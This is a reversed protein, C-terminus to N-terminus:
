RSTRVTLTNHRRGDAPLAAYERYTLVVRTPMKEMRSDIVRDTVVGRDSSRPKEPSQM